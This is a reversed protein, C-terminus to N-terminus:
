AVYHITQTKSDVIKATCAGLEFVRKFDENTYNSRQGKSDAVEWGLGNPLQHARLRERRKYIRWERPDDRM